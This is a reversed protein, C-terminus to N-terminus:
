DLYKALQDKLHVRKMRLQNLVEDTAAGAGSEIRHIEHDTEHYQDFLNRFHSNSIKLTHIKDRHQSFEHVLDHHKDMNKEEFSDSNSIL